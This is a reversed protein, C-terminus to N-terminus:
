EDPSVHDVPVAITVRLGEFLEAYEDFTEFFVLCLSRLLRDVHPPLEPKREAQPRSCRDFLPRSCARSLAGFRTRHDDRKPCLIM